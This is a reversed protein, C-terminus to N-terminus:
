TSDEVDILLIPTSVKEIVKRSTSGLRLIAKIGPLKRRKAMVIVQYDKAFRIIENEPIGLVVKSDISIEGKEEIVKKKISEMQREMEEIASNQLKNVFEIFDLRNASISFSSPTSLPVVVHLLTIKSEPGSSINLAHELAKDGALTGAHPVLIKNYGM